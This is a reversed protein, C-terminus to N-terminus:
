SRWARSRSSRSRPRSRPPRRPAGPSRATAACSRAATTSPPRRSSRAAPRGRTTRRSRPSADAPADAPDATRQPRRADDRAAPDRARGAGLGDGVDLAHARHRRDLRVRPLARPADAHRDVAAARGGRRQGRPGRARHGRADDVRVARREAQDRRARARPRHRQRQGVHADRARAGAARPEGRAGGRADSSRSSSTSCSPWGGGAGPTRRRPEHRLPAARRPEALRGHLGQRRGAPRFHFYPMEVNPLEPTDLVEGHGVLLRYAEGELPVLAATTAPGPQASFVTTPPNGLGGIGLERDILRVPRDRRAVKWNGEGMHSVLVSDLEFDMAYLESFNADGILTQAACMLTATNTDGEAAYGYGDAMLNSAALLPLQEFRGDGGVSDFHASFARYGKEELLDRLAVEYRAAYAHAARPLAPDIEFLEGHRAILAEIREDSSRRCGRTSRASTRPSSSRASGGCCARAPRLPHRGHREDPLRVARDADLAAGDGDGRRAGLRRVGRRVRGLGVRGHDGLVPDGRARAREGPGPRRPDGPQLDPRGHGLRRDGRARPQINALMLPLPTELLARVTRMAPGYTLMVIAIGDLGRAGYERVIEEVDERNRAPRIFEVEAVDALRAAVARAYEAQHETIGPLMEDYLEQMIGLLGIRPKVVSEKRHPHAEPRPAARRGIRGLREYLSRYIAYVRDYIAQADADPAYSRAIRPRTAAIASAIDPFAGAAVAGFLAAGRAPIQTSDPVSVRLGSTDALLQMTLPSKEAIGGCAVIENLKLGHEEFNEIIRRNGFAISELLARYIQERTTQLTLGFLAGSLDADALITRNGNWWDLAM